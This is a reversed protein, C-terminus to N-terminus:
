VVSKRDGMAARPDSALKEEGLRYTALAPLYIDKELRSAIYSEQAALMLAIIM